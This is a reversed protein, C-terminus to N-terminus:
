GIQGAIERYLDIVEAVTDPLMKVLSIRQRADELHADLDVTLFNEFVSCFSPREVAASALVPIQLAWAEHISLSVGDTTTNRIFANSLLLINRFDHLTSIFLINDPIQRTGKIHRQYNGSPDSILLQYQPFQAFHSVLDSIGYIERGDRDFAVNWANTCFTAEYKTYRVTICDLLAQPLPQIAGGPIYTSILRARPNCKLALSFSARDQVILAYALGAGLEVLWNKWWGYRGWKGHYTIILKKGILRCCIAFLLQVSPSSFHVHIIRHTAIQFIIRVFSDKQLDCFRFDCGRDRLHYVLRAIHVTVGGIPPPIKGIILVKAM